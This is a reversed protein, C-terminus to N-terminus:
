QQLKHPTRPRINSTDFFPSGAFAFEWDLVASVYWRSHDNHVLINTGKYDSHVLSAVNDLVDLYAAHDNAFQWLRATLIPGLLQDAHQQFLCEEMFSLIM